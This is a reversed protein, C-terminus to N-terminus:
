SFFFIRIRDNQVQIQQNQDKNQEWSSYLKIFGNNCTPDPDPDLSFTGSRAPWFDFSGVPDEDM